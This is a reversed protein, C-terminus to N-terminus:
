RRGAKLKLQDARGWGPLTGRSGRVQQEPLSSKRGQFSRQMYWEGHHGRKLGAQRPIYGDASIGALDYAYQHGSVTGRIRLEDWVFAGMSAAAEFAEFVHYPVSQYKYLSGEGQRQKGTGSLFRVLLDRPRTRDATPWEYSISHVNSSTVPIMGEISLGVQQGGTEQDLDPTSTDVRVEPRPPRPQPTGTPPTIQYGFQRLLQAAANKGSVAGAVGQQHGCVLQNVDDDGVIIEFVLGAQVQQERHARVNTLGPSDQDRSWRMSSEAVDCGLSPLDEQKQLPGHTWLRKLEGDMERNGRKLVLTTHWPHALRLWRAGDEFRPEILLRLHLGM